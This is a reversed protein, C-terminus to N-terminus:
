IQAAEILAISTDHCPDLQHIPDIIFALKM